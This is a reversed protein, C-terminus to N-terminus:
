FHQVVGDPSEIETTDFTTVRERLYSGDSSYGIQTINPPLTADPDGAHLAGAVVRENGDAGEYTPVLNNNTPDNAPIMRGLSVLWGVGANSRRNPTARVTSGPTKEYDWVKSNYTLTLGYSLSANVPYTPGLPIRVTLNGNFTNIAD